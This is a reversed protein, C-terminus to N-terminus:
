MVVAKAVRCLDLKALLGKGVSAVIAYGQWLAHVICEDDFQTAGLAVVPPTNHVWRQTKNSPFAVACVCNHEFALKHFNDVLPQFVVLLILFRVM